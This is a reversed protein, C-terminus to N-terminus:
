NVGFLKKLDEKKKEDMVADVVDRYIEVESFDPSLAIELFEDFDVELIEIKEGSDLSLDSVKKLGSAVFVFVAWEVKSLPQLSKWLTFNDTEYGSEERLEREAAKMINEGEEVRGGFGGIFTKKGPQEQRNLLIKGSDLVPFTIVTDPRKIKEFIQTTGDFMKQEWQYVDFMVGKFVRKAHPPIPQKSQPREIKM